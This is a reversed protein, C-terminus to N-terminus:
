PTQRLRNQKQSLNYFYRDYEINLIYEFNAWTEVGCFDNCVFFEIQCKKNKKM